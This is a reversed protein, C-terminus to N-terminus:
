PDSILCAQQLKEANLAECSGCVRPREACTASPDIRGRCMYCRPRPASPPKQKTGHNRWSSKLSTSPAFLSAYPRERSVVCKWIAQGNAKTSTKTTSPKRLQNLAMKGTLAKRPPARSPKRYRKRARQTDKGKEKNREGKEARQEEEKKAQRGGEQRKIKTWSKLKRKIKRKRKRKERRKCM